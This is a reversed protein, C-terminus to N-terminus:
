LHIHCTSDAATPVKILPAYNRGDIPRIHILFM